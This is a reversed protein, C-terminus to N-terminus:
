SPSNRAARLSTDAIVSLPQSLHSMERRRVADHCQCSNIEDSVSDVRPLVAALRGRQLVVEQCLWPGRRVSPAFPGVWRVANFVQDRRDSVSSVLVPIWCYQSGVMGGLKTSTQCRRGSSHCLGEGAWLFRCWSMSWKINKSRGFTFTLIYCNTISIVMCSRSIVHWLPDCLTIQWGGKGWGLSTSSKAVESPHLASNVQFLLIHICHLLRRFSIVFDSLLFADFYTATVYNSVWRENYLIYPKIEVKLSQKLFIERLCHVASTHLM